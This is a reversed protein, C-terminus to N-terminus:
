IKISLHLSLDLLHGIKGINITCYQWWTAESYIIKFFCSFCWYYRVTIFISIKNEKRKFYYHHFFPSRHYNVNAQFFFFSILLKGQLLVVDFNLFYFSFFFFSIYLEFYIVIIKSLCSANFLVTVFKIMISTAIKSLTDTNKSFTPLTYYTYIIIIIKIYTFHLFNRIWVWSFKSNKIIVNTM